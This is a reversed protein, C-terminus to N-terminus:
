GSWRLDEGPHDARRHRPGDAGAGEGGRGGGPGPVPRAAGPALNRHPHEHHSHDVRVRRPLALGAAPRGGEVAPVLGGPGPIRLQRSAHGPAPPESHSGSRAIGSRGHGLTVGARGTPPDARRGPGGGQAAAPLLRLEHEPVGRPQGSRLRRRVTRRVLGPAGRPQDAGGRRGRPRPRPWPLVGRDRGAEIEGERARSTRAAANEGGGPTGVHDFACARRAPAPRGRHCPPGGRGPHPAREQDGGRRRPHHTRQLLQPLGNALERLYHALQHPECASAASEIVEPYRSLVKLLDIEHREALRDVHGLAAGDGRGAGNGADREARRMVSAIRAHAYQVYYVPNENSKSKALELDFDLHQDSKRLVYFFRAADTGVEDLLDRLTVFEGSRTSMAVRERGRWLSALQVIVVEFADPDRGLARIAGKVRAVYGHHDAGWVDIIRDFGREFKDLHYAVDSAFYTGQGNARVLVRDKEDGHKQASFWLAGDREYAEDRDRLVALARPVAGSSVLDRESFWRDFVVGFRELDDRIGGLISGLVADAVLAYDSEGLAARAGAVLADLHADRDTAPAPAPARAPAPAPDVLDRGLRGGHARALDGAIDRIYDGQYGGGPFEPRGPWDVAELYRLWVSVTLIDMQRGADNVYYEREVEWGVAELLNAVAAGCAAGRGHGVHLPGTPNVSVFEVQVRRGGFRRSRGWPSDSGVIEAAIRQFAEDALTFNIFGPGAVTASAVDESAPLAAVIREALERPNARAARALGLAVPCAFDGHRPDRAREIVIPPVSEVDLGGRERLTGVASTVLAELGKKM